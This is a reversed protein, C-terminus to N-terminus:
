GSQAASMLCTSTMSRSPEPRREFDRPPRGREPSAGAVREDVVIRSRRARDCPALDSTVQGGLEVARVREVVRALASRLDGVNELDLQPNGQGAEYLPPRLAPDHVDGELVQAGPDLRREGGSTRYGSSTMGRRTWRHRAASALGSESSRLRRRLSSPARRRVRRTPHRRRGLGSCRSRQRMVTRRCADRRSRM